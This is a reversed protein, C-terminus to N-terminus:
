QCWRGGAIPSCFRKGLRRAALKKATLGDVFQNGLGLFWSMPESLGQPRPRQGGKTDSRDDPRPYENEGAGSGRALVELSWRDQVGLHEIQDDVKQSGSSARSCQHM